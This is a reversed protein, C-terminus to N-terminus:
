IKRVPRSFAVILIRVLLGASRNTASRTFVIRLILVIINMTAPMQKSNRQLIERIHHIRGKISYSSTTPVMTWWSAGGNKVMFTRSCYEHRCTVVVGLSCLAFLRKVTTSISDGSKSSYRFICYLDWTTFINMLVHHIIHRPMEPACKSSSLEWYIPPSTTFLRYMLTGWVTNWCAKSDDWSEEIILYQM